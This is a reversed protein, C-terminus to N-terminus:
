GDTRQARAADLSVINGCSRATKRKRRQAAALRDIVIQLGLVSGMVTGILMAFGLLKVLIM